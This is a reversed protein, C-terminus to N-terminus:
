IIFVSRGKNLVSFVLVNRFKKRPIKLMMLVSLFKGFTIIPLTLIWNARYDKITSSIRQTQSVVMIYWWDRVKLQNWFINYFKQTSQHGKCIIEVKLVKKPVLRLLLLNDFIQFIESSPQHITCIVTTGLMALQKLIDIVRHAFYSDLGSTPEDLFLIAPNTVM